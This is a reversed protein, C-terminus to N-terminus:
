AVVSQTVASANLLFGDLMIVWSSVSKRTPRDGAWDSDTFVTLTSCARNQVQLKLGFDMTGCLYRLLRESAIVDSTSPKAPSRALRNTAFAVDPRRLVLFQTKGVIHGLIRHEEASAEEEDDDDDNRAVAPTLVPKADKMGHENLMGEVYRTTPLEWIADGRPLYRAGM